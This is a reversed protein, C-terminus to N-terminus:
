ASCFLNFYYNLQATVLSWAHVPGKFLFSPLRNNIIILLGSSYVHINTSRPFSVHKNWIWHVYNFMSMTCEINRADYMTMWVSDHLSKSAIIITHWGREHYRLTAIPRLEAKPQTWMVIWGGNKFIRKSTTWNWSYWIM